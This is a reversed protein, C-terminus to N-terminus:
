LAYEVCYRNGAFERCVRVGLREIIQEEYSEGRHRRVTLTTNPLDVCAARIAKLTAWESSSCTYEGDGVDEASFTLRGAEPEFDRREIKVYRGFGELPAHLVNSVIATLEGEPLVGAAFREAADDHGHSKLLEELEANRGAREAAERAAEIAAKEAARQDRLERVAVAHKAEVRTRYNGNVWFQELLALVAGSLAGTDSIHEEPNAGIRDDLESWLKSEIVARESSLQAYLAEAEADGKSYNPRGTWGAVTDLDPREVPQGHQGVVFVSGERLLELQKRYSAREAEIKAERETKAKEAAAHDCALADLVGEWGAVAVTLASYPSAKEDSTAAQALRARYKAPLAALQEQTPFVLVRGCKPSANRIADETPVYTHIVLNHM